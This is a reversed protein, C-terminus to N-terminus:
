HASGLCLYVRYFAVAIYVAAGAAPCEKCLVIKADRAAAPELDVSVDVVAHVAGIGEAYASPFLRFLIGEEDGSEEMLQFITEDLMTPSPMVFPMSLVMAACLVALIVRLFPKM